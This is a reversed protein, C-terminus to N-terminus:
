FRGVTVGHRWRMRLDDGEERMQYLAKVEEPAERHMQYIAEQEEESLGSGKMWNRVSNDPSWWERATVEQAGALLMWEGIESTAFIHRDPEKRAFVEEYFAWGATGRPSPPPGEWIAMWGPRGPRLWSRWRGVSVRPDVAHHLMMRSVVLEFRAGFDLQEERGEVWEVQSERERLRRAAKRLMEGSGDVGVVAAGPYARFIEETLAGTGVGVELIQRGPVGLQSLLQMGPAWTGTSRVWALHDYGGARQNWDTERRM